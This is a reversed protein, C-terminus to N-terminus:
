SNHVRSKERGWCPFRELLAHFMSGPLRQHNQVMTELALQCKERLSEPTENEAPYIPKGIFTTLKVPLGGYIPVCPFRIRNYLKKTFSMGIRVSRFAERVNRTFVPIIPADAMLSIKAFGVRKKWLIEYKQHSSFQAEYVGGPSIGLLNGEKLDEACTEVTGPTCNFAKLVSSLGPVKFLFLDVVSLLNRELKLTVHSVLYYYDIPLAGHYYVLLAPGETPINELGKVEYGFWLQGKVLWMASLIQRVAEELDGEM